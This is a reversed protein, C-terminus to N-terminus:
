CEPRLQVEIQQNGSLESLVENEQKVLRKLSEQLAQIQMSILTQNISSQPPEGFVEFQTLQENM